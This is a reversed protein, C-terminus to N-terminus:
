PLINESREPVAPPQAPKRCAGMNVSLSLPRDIMYPSIGHCCSIIHNQGVAFSLRNEIVLSLGFTRDHLIYLQAPPRAIAQAVPHAVIAPRARGLLPDFPKQVATRIKEQPISRFARQRLVLFSLMLPILDAHRGTGRPYASQYVGSAVRGSSVAVFLLRAEPAEQVPKILASRFPEPFFLPWVPVCFRAKLPKLLNPCFIRSAKDVNGRDIRIVAKTM